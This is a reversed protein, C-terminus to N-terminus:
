PCLAMTIKMRQRVRQIVSTMGSAIVLRSAITRRGRKFTMSVFVAKERKPLRATNKMRPAKMRAAARIFDPTLVRKARMKRVLILLDGWARRRLTSKDEANRAKQIGAWATAAKINGM